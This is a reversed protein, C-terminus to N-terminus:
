TEIEAQGHQVHLPVQVLCAEVHRSFGKEAAYGANLRNGWTKLQATSL